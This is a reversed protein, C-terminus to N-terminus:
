RVCRGSLAAEKTMETDTEVPDAVMFYEKFNIKIFNRGM